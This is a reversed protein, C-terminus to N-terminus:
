CTLIFYVPTRRGTVCSAQTLDHIGLIRAFRLHRAALRSLSDRAPVPGRGWCIWSNRRHRHDSPRLTPLLLYRM